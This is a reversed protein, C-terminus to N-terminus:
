SIALSPNALVPENRKFLMQYYFYFVIALFYRKRKKYISYKQKYYSTKVLKLKSYDIDSDEMWKVLYEYALFSTERFDTDPNTIRNELHLRRLAVPKEIEGPCLKCIAALKVFFVMDQHLRLAPFMGVKLLAEKKGIFGNLHIYGYKGSMMYYFLIEPEVPKTITAIEDRHTAFYRRRAEKNEFECGVAEYVGDISSDQLLIKGAKAFRNPLFFDDADLFAIYEYSAKEIGLNRSIGAGHNKGDEHQYLKVKEHRRTLAKCVELANDPSQDEVLIVEGCEKQQLASEVASEVYKEANYVPIVISIKM